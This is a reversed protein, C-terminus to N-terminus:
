EGVNQFEQQVEAHLCPCWFHFRPPLCPATGWTGQDPPQGPQMRCPILISITGLLLRATLEELSSGQWSDIRCQCDGGHMPAWPRIRVLLVSGYCPQRRSTTQFTKATLKNPFSASPPSFGACYALKKGAKM